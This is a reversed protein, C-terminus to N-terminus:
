QLSLGHYVKILFINQVESDPYRESIASFISDTTICVYRTYSLPYTIFSTGNRTSNHCTEAPTVWASLPFLGDSDRSTIALSFNSYGKTINAAIPLIQISPPTDSRPSATAGFTYPGVTCNDHRNNGASRM